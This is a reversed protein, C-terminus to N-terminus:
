KTIFDHTWEFGDRLVVLGHKARTTAVYWVRDENKRAVPDMLNQKKITKPIGDYLFVWEAEGGKSAHITNVEVPLKDPDIARDNNEMAPRIWGDLADTYRILHQTSDYGNTMEAWFTDDLFRVLDAIDTTDFANIYYEGLAKLNDREQTLYRAPLHRKLALVEEGRVPPSLKSQAEPSDDAWREVNEPTVHKLKQLLNYLGTRNM